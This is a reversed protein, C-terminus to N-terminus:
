EAGPPMVVVESRVDTVGTVGKVVRLLREEAGQMHTVGTIRVVGKEPVEIHFMDRRFVDSGLNSELVAADVRRSLSLREMSELATMSCEKIEQSQAAEMILKAASDTSLKDRNIVLDYLSPDNWNMHFAFQLFGRQENDTKHILKETAERSLGRQNILYEIRSSESGYIRVHLACGFDRLLVQSGHGLIIGHGRKAVEYVVGQLLDLYVQPKDNFIRSFIGPAKEDLNKLVEPQIGLQIAEQELRRDDYLELKLEGAVLAAIAKGGCGISESITILSM